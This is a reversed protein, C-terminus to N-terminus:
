LALQTRDNSVAFYSAQMLRRHEGALAAESSRLAEILHQEGGGRELEQRARQARERAESIYLLTAEIERLQQEDGVVTVRPPLASTSGLSPGLPQDPM